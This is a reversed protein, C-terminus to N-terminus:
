QFFSRRLNDLRISGTLKQRECWYYTPPVPRAKAVSVPHFIIQRVLETDIGDDNRSVAITRKCM